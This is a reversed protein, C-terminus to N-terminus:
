QAELQAIKSTLIEIENDKAKVRTLLKSYHEQLETFEKSKRGENNKSEYSLRELESATANLKSRMEQAGAKEKQYLSENEKAKREMAEADSLYIM